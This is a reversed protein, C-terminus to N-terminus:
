EILEWRDTQMRDAIAFNITDYYLEEHKAPPIGFISEAYAPILQEALYRKWSTRSSAFAVLGQFYYYLKGNASAAFANPATDECDNYYGQALWFENTSEM